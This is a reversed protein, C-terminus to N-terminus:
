GVNLAEQIAVPTGSAALQPTPQLRGHSYEPALIHRRHPHHIAGPVFRYTQIHNVNVQIEEEVNVQDQEVNLQAGVVDVQILRLLQQMPESTTVRCPPAIVSSCQQTSLADLTQIGITLDQRARIHLVSRGIKLMHRRMSCWSYRRVPVIQQLGQDTIM